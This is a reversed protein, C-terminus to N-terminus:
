PKMSGAHLECLHGPVCDCVPKEEAALAARLFSLDELPLGLLGDRLITAAMPSDMSLFYAPSEQLNIFDDRTVCLRDGDQFTKM